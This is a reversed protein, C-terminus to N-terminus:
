GGPGAQRSRFAISAAPAPASSKHQREAADKLVRLGSKPKLEWKAILRLIAKREAPAVTINRAGMGSRRWYHDLVLTSMRVTYLDGEHVWYDHEPEVHGAPWTKVRWAHEEPDYLGRVRFGAFDDDEITFRLGSEKGAGNAQSKPRDAIAKAQAKGESSRRKAWRSIRRQSDRKYRQLLEQMTEVLQTHTFTGKQFFADTPVKLKQAKTKCESSIVISALQPFRRKVIRLLEVGSMKPMRLDTVIIDFQSQLLSRLAEFGDAATSCIFGNAGLIVSLTELMLADDDVLLVHPAFDIHM